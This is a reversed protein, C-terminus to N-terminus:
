DMTACVHRINQATFEHIKALVAKSIAQLVADGPNYGLTAFAWLTNATNQANGEGAKAANEEGYAQLFEDGPHHNM